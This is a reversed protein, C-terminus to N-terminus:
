DEKEKFISGGDLKDEWEAFRKEDTVDISINFCLFHFQIGIFVEDFSLQITPILYWIWDFIYFGAELKYKGIKREMSCLM